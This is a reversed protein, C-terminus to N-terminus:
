SLAKGGKALKEQMLEQACSVNCKGCSAFFESTVVLDWYRELKAVFQM